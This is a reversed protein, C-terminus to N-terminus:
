QIYVIILLMVQCRYTLNLIIKQIKKLADILEARLSVPSLVEMEPGFGLLYGVVWPESPFETRVLLTGDPQNDIRDEPFYERVREAALPSFKLVTALSNEPPAQYDMYSTYNGERRLFVEPLIELDRVRSVRFVRFDERLRCWGFLYTNFGKFMLTMPEVVRREEEGKWGRYTFRITKQDCIAQYIRAYDAELRAQSGWPALDFVLRSQRLALEEERQPPILSRIKDRAAEIEPSNLAPQIGGLATLISSMDQLSLYQRDIKYNPLISYGGEKGQRSQIPIGAQQLTEMDRYITRETVEFKRALEPATVQEANILALFIAFLRDTKM